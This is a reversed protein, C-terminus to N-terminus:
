EGNDHPQVQTLADPHPTMTYTAEMIRGLESLPMRKIEEPSMEINAFTPTSDHLDSDASKLTPLRKDILKLALDLQRDPTISQAPEVEEGTAPDIRRCKGSMAADVVLDVLTEVPIRERIARATSTSFKNNLSFPPRASRILSFTM